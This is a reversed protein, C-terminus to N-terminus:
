HKGLGDAWVYRAPAVILSQFTKGIEHPRTILTMAGAPVFLATGTVLAAFGLPRLFLADAVPDSTANEAPLKAEWADDYAAFGASAGGTVIAAIACLAVAARRIRSAGGLKTHGFM